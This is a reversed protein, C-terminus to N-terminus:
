DIDVPLERIRIGADTIAVLAGRELTPAAERLVVELAVNVGKPSMDSLRLTLISPLYWACLEATPAYKKTWRM